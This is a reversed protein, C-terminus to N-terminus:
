RRKGPKRATPLAKRIAKLNDLIEDIRKDPGEGSVECISRSDPQPTGQKPHEVADM